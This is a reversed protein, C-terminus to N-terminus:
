TKFQKREKNTGHLNQKYLTSEYLCVGTYLPRDTTIRQDTQASEASKRYIRFHSLLKINELASAIEPSFLELKVQMCLFSEAFINCLKLAFYVFVLAVFLACYEHHIKYLVYKTKLLYHLTEM